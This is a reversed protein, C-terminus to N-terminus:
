TLLSNDKASRVFCYDGVLLLVSIEKSHRTKHAANPRRGMICYTYWSRYPVHTLNHEEVEKASPFAPAPYARAATAEQHDEDEAGVAAEPGTVTSSVGPQHKDHQTM